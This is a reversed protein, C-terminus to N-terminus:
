WGHQKCTSALIWCLSIDTLTDTCWYTTYPYIVGSGNWVTTYTLFQGLVNEEFCYIQIDSLTSLYRGHLLDLKRSGPNKTSSYKWTRMSFGSAFDEFVSIGTWILAAANWTKTSELPCSQDIKGRYSKCSNALIDEMYTAEQSLKRNEIGSCNSLCIVSFNPSVRGGYCNKKLNCNYDGYRRM